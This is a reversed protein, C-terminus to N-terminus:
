LDFLRAHSGTRRLTITTESNEYILLWDTELHCERFERLNGKLSHDRHKEDLQRGKCLDEVVKKLVGFDKGQKQALKIDKKFQKTRRITKM